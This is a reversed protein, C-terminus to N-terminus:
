INNIQASVIVKLSRKLCDSANRSNYIQKLATQLIDRNITILNNSITSIKRTIINRASLSRQFLPHFKHCINQDPSNEYIFIHKLYCPVYYYHQHTENTNCQEANM